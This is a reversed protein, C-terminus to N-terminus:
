NPNFHIPNSPPLRPLSGKLARLPDGSFGHGLGKLPWRLRGQALGKLLGWLNFSHCPFRCPREWWKVRMLFAAM